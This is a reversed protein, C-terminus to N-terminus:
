GSSSVRMTADYRGQEFYLAVIVIILNLSALCCDKRPAARQATLAKLWDYLVVAQERHLPTELCALLAYCWAARNATMPWHQQSYYVLHSLLRRVMVQDMQLLLSTDPNYGTPPLTQMWDESPSEDIQAHSNENTSAEKSPDQLVMTSEDEQEKDMNDNIDNSDIDDSEGSGSNDDNNDDQGFYNDVNGQAEATGVMFTHWGARDKLTPLTYPFTRKKGWYSACKQIYDRLQAFDALTATVWADGAKPLVDNSPPPTLAVSPSLLYAMSAASSSAKPAPQIKQQRDNAELSSSPTTQFNHPLQNAQAVVRSLYTQADISTVDDFKIEQASDVARRKKSVHLCPQMTIQLLYPITPVTTHYWCQNLLFLNLRKTEDVAMAKKPTRAISAHTFPVYIKQLNTANTALRPLVAHRQSIIQKAQLLRGYLLKSGLRRPHRKNRARYQTFEFCSSVPSTAELPLISAPSVLAHGGALPTSEDPEIKCLRNVAVDCENM